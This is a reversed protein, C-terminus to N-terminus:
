KFLSKAAAETVDTSGPMAKTEAARLTSIRDAYRKGYAASQYAALFAVRRAIIEDLTEAVSAAQGAKDAFGPQAVLGRVFDPQHAARRGWRFAAINMAVAEGNLEIAKEVAEASLPLGGHQFAFGLMFMNAGLSNGFLATATRTADFFHAKDDGAASRIAKKLREVPLSFDASRAFEGPMIEATN